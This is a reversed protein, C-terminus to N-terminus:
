NVGERNSQEKLEIYATTLDIDKSPNIFPGLNSLFGMEEKQIHFIEREILEFADDHFTKWLQNDFGHELAARAHAVTLDALPRITDHEQKLMEPIDPNIHQSFLPFLHDEEFTFHEKVESELLIILDSLLIQFASDEFAPMGSIGRRNLDNELRELLALTALHDKHLLGIIEPEM